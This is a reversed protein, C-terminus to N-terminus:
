NRPATLLEPSAQLLDLVEHLSGAVRHGLALLDPSPAVLDPVQVVQMGAAHAARVGNDSDELAWASGAPVGLGALAALYPDPHPKGRATEGGCILCSFHSLVGARELKHTAMPRATSTAVARPIGYGRLADLLAVAGPKLTIQGSEVRQRYAADWYRELEAYDVGPSLTAKLLSETHEMTAGICRSYTDLDPAAGLAACAELYAERAVRESDLLLGDMDFVVGAPAALSM